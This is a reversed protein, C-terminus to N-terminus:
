LKMWKGTEVIKNKKDILRYFYIGSELTQTNIYKHNNDLIQEIVIQGNMNVLEFYLKKNNTNVYFFDTGPNPYVTTSQNNIPIGQSWTILGGGDVKLVYLDREQNTQTKYDYRTGAMVCGGDQTALIAWPFYCADGGYFKQWKLNLNSDIKNLVFWSPMHSFYPNSLNLNSIGSYYIDNESIFDLNSHVTAYDVTDPKGYYMHDILNNSLDTKALGLDRENDREPFIKNGTILLTTDNLLKITNHFDLDLPVSYSNVIEFNTDLCYSNILPNRVHGYVIIRYESSPLQIIDSAMGFGDLLKEKIINGDVSLEHLMIDWNTPSLEYSSFIVINGINNIIAYQYIPSINGNVPIKTDGIINFNYDFTVAWLNFTTDTNYKGFAMFKNNDVKLLHFLECMGNAPNLIDISDILIGENNLKILKAFQYNTVSIFINGGSDEIMAGGLHDIPDDLIYEFSSQAIASFFQFFLIIVFIYLKM